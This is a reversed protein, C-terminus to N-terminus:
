NSLCQEIIEVNKIISSARVQTCRLIHKDILLEITVYVAPLSNFLVKYSQFQNELYM